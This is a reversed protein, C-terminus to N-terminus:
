STGAQWEEHSGTIKVNQGSWDDCIHISLILEAMASDPVDQSAESPKLAHVRISEWNLLESLVAHLANERCCPFM